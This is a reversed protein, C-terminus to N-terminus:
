NLRQKLINVHTEDEQGLKHFLEALSQNDFNLANHVHVDVFKEEMQVSLQVAKKESLEENMVKRLIQEAHTLSEKIKDDSITPLAKLEKENSQLVLDILNAHAREDDSLQKFAERTEDSYTKQNSLLQYIQCSIEEIRKCANLFHYM